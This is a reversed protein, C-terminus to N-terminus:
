RGLLQREDSEVEDDVPVTVLRGLRLVHAVCVEDSKGMRRLMAWVLDSSRASFKLAAQFVWSSLKLKLKM